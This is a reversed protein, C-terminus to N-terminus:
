ILPVLTSCFRLKSTKCYLLVKDQLEADEAAERKAEEERGKTKELDWKRKELMQREKLETSEIKGGM